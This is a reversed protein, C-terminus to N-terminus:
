MYVAGQHNLEFDKPVSNTNLQQNNCCLLCLSNVEFVDNISSKKVHIIFHSIIYFSIFSFISKMM